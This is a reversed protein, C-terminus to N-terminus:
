SGLHSAFWHEASLPNFVHEGEFLDLACATEAGSAVYARRVTAFGAEVEEVGYLQDGRGNQILLARPAVLAALEPLDCLRLFGFMHNCLDWGQLRQWAMVERRLTTFYGSVVAARLREDFAALFLARKGGESLGVAGL